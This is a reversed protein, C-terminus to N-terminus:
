TYWQLNVASGPVAAFLFLFGITAVFALVMVQVRKGAAGEMPRRRILFDASAGAVLKGFLGGLEFSSLIAAATATNTILKEDILYLQMWNLIGQRIAYVGFYSLGLLWM